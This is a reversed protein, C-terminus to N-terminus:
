FFLFIEFNLTRGWLFSAGVDESGCVCGCVLVCVCVDKFKHKSTFTNLHKRHTQPTEACQHQRIEHSGTYRPHGQRSGSPHVSIGLCAPILSLAGVRQSSQSNSCSSLQHAVAIVFVSGRDFAHTTSKPRSTYCTCSHDDHEHARLNRCLKSWMQFVRQSWTLM